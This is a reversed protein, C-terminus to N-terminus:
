CVMPPAISQMRAAADAENAAYGSAAAALKMATAHMRATCNAGAAAVLANLATVAAASGLLSSVAGDPAANGALKGALAECWSAEAQLAADSVRLTHGTQASLM